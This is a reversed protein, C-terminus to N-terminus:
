GVPPRGGGGHQIAGRYRHRGLSMEGKLMLWLPRLLARLNPGAPHALHRRNAIREERHFGARHIESNGGGSFEIVVRDVFSLPYHPLVRLWFEYDMRVRLGPDFGGQEEFIKRSTFSAQHSILARRRLPDRPRPARLPITKDGLGAFATVIGPQRLHTVMVALGSEDSYCDGANLFQIWDGRTRALGRNFADAIGDDPESRWSMQESQRESLLEVTGDTSAGDVVIHEFGRYTQADLSDLTRRLGDCDDHVITVISILGPEAPRKWVIRPSISTKKM